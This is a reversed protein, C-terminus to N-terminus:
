GQVTGASGRGADPDLTGSSFRAAFPYVPNGPAVSWEGGAYAARLPPLIEREIRVAVAAELAPLLDAAAVLAVHDNFAGRPGATAFSGDAPVTANECELFDRADPPVANGAVDKSRRRQDRAACNASAPVQLPRGPAFILAVAADSRGD